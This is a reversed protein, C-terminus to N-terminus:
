IIGVMQGDAIEVDVNDVATKEGFRRTVKQIKLM